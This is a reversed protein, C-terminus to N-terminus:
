LVAHPTDYALYLFFPSSDAAQAQQTIYRKAAATWLDATYVKDLDDTINTRNDWVEKTGRYIGEKPYHEHGDAHRIYGLYYDFGRKAPHAPWDPGPMKPDGGQLGWKGIAATHYGARKLATGLTYTDQLEKDFQNDRVNAHGQSVGLLLSARSPACVPAAAYHNTLMVGGAALQDLAPTQQWPEGRDNRAKRQNQWFAGVDGWGMDDVLIFIINPKSQAKEQRSPVGVSWSASAM